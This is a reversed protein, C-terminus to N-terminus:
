AAQVTSYDTAGLVFPVTGYRQVLNPGYGKGGGKALPTMKQQQRKGRPKMLIMVVVVVVIIIHSHINLFAIALRLRDVKVLNGASNGLKTSTKIGLYTIQSGIIFFDIREAPCFERMEKRGIV